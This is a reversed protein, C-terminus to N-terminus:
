SPRALPVWSQHGEYSNVGRGRVLLLHRGVALSGTSVLAQVAETSLEYSGDTAAACRAHGGGLAPYRHLIRRRRRKPLLRQRTWNYNITSLRSRSGQTVTMPDAAATNPGRTMLYPMRSVKATYIIPGCARRAAAVPTTWAPYTPFFGTGGIGPTAPYALDGYAWNKRTATWSTCADPTRATSTATAPRSVRQRREHARAINRLDTRNPARTTTYGWPYLNLEANSHM